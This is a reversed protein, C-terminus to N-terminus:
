LFPLSSEEELRFFAFTGNEKTTEFGPKDSLLQQQGLHPVSGMGTIAGFIPWTWRKFLPHYRWWPLGTISPALSPLSVSGEPHVPQIATTNRVEERIMPATLPGALSLSICSFRSFSPFTGISSVTPVMWCVLGFVKRSGEHSGPAAWDTPQVAWPGMREPLLWYALPACLLINCCDISQLWWLLLPWCSKQFATNAGLRPPLLTFWSEPFCNPM